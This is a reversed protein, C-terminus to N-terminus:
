VSVHASLNYTYMCLYDFILLNVFLGEELAPISMAPNRAVLETIFSSFRVRSIAM